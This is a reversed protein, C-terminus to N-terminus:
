LRVFLEARPDNPQKCSREGDISVATTVQRAAVRFVRLSGKRTTVNAADYGYTVTPTGDSYSKGTVRNLADYSYATTISRNDTKSSVNGVNDYTYSSTGSEPNGAATLRELSDYFFVRTQSGQTVKQLTNNVGITYNTVYNLGGPDETVSPTRGLGDIVLLRKKGAQDTVTVQNGSYSTTAVAGDATQVQTRDSLKTPIRPKFTRGTM